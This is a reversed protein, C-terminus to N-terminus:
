KKEKKNWVAMADPTGRRPISNDEMVEQTITEMEQRPLVIVPARKDFFALTLYEDKCDRFVEIMHQFNKIATGNVEKIVFGVPDVYGRAVKHRLLPSTVVVLQEGPFSPKDDYRRNLITDGGFPYYPTPSVAPSFVLPGHIFFSPYKTDNEKILFDRKGYVPADLSLPKGQRWLRIPVKNQRSLKAVVYQYSLRLNERIQVTGQNDLAHTGVHTIVDYKKLPGDDQHVLVGQIKPDLKFKKRLTPNELTQIQCYLWSKGDYRGDAVDALFGEIEENPIVYGINQASFGLRSFALGIMNKGAMAPGGSNGPNIAADVQIRLGLDRYSYEGYDIRSIIGKTVSQDPGGIPYGFVEVATREEPLTKSRPLPPRKAFFEKNEVTLLALDVGPGIAKIKAEVKDSSGRAQVYIESAHLVVHANTLIQQGEIIAGSGTVEVPTSKRWPHLFDPRRVTAYVRVVSDGPGDANAPVTHCLNILVAIVTLRRLM